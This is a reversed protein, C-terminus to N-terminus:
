CDGNGGIRLIRRCIFDRTKQLISFLRNLSGVSWALTLEVAHCWLPKKTTSGSMMYFPKESVMIAERILSFKNIQIIGKGNRRSLILIFFEKRKATSCLILHLHAL